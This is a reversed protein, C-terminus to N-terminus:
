ASERTTPSPQRAPRDALVAAIREEITDVELEANTLIQELYAKGNEDLEEADRDGLLVDWVSVGAPRWRELRELRSRISM